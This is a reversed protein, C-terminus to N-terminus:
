LREFYLSVNRNLFVVFCVRSCQVCPKVSCHGQSTDSDIAYLVSCSWASFLRRMHPSIVLPFTIKVYQLTLNTVSSLIRPSISRQPTTNSPIAQYTYKVKGVKTHRYVLGTTAFMPIFSTNAIYTPRM